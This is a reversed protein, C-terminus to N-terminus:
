WLSMFCDGLADIIMVDVDIIADRYEKLFAVYSKNRGVVREGYKDDDDHKENGTHTRDINGGDTTTRNGTSDSSSDTNDYTVNTAYKLQEVSDGPLMGMPTDQYINEGHSDSSDNENWTETRDTNRIEKKTDNYTDTHENLRWGDTKREYDTFPDTMDQLQMYLKNYYPMIENMRNRVFWAFQAVTEAGIENFYYHNIIKDNLTYRHEEAFIPYKDLGLKEYTAMHYQGNAPKGTYESESQEVIFRIETTYKSM